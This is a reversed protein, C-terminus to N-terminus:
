REASTPKPAVRENQEVWPKPEVPRYENTGATVPVYEISPVPAAPDSPDTGSMIVPPASCASLIAAIAALAIPKM